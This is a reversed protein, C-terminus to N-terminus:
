EEEQMQDAAEKRFLIRYVQEGRPIEEVEPWPKITFNKLIYDKVEGEIGGLFFADFVILDTTYLNYLFKDRFGYYNSNVWEPYQFFLPGLPSHRTYMFLQPGNRGIFLYRDLKTMDLVTDVYAAEGKLVTAENRMEEIRAKFNTDPLFITCFGIFLLTFATLFKQLYASFINVNKLFYLFFSIFVPIAFIFHHNFFEGGLGISFLTLFTILLFKACLQFVSSFNINAKLKLLESALYIGALMFILIGLPSSFLNLDHFLRGYEWGRSLPSGYATIRDQLMFPLYITVYSTFLGSAMLLLVGGALALLLPILFFDKFDRFNTSLILASAMATGLFPEKMGLGLM